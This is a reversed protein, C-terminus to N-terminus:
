LQYDVVLYMQHCNAVDSFTKTWHSVFVNSSFLAADLFVYIISMLCFEIFCVLINKKFDCVCVCVCVNAEPEISKNRLSLGDDNLLSATEAEVASYAAVAEAAAM